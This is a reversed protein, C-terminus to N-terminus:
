HQIKKIKLHYIVSEQSHSDRDECLLFHVSQSDESFLTIGEFKSTDSLVILQEVEFEPLHMIGLYTGKITGDHYVSPQSEAVATFYITDRVRVADSFGAPTDNLAPLPVPIFITDLGPTLRFIGNFGLLGNGRNFLLLQNKYRLAGEINFNDTGIQYKKQLHQYLPRMDLEKIRYKKAHIPISFQQNRVSGTDSGSGLIVLRDEDSFIAEFDSKTDKSLQEHPPASDTLLTKYLRQSTISYQYLYNSTDSILYLRDNKFVLGSAAGIGAITFAVELLFDKM